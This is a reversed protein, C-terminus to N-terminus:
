DYVWGIVASNSDVNNHNNDLTPTHYATSKPQYGFRLVIPHRLIPKGQATLLGTFTPMYNPGDHASGDFVEEDEEYEEEEDDYESRLM